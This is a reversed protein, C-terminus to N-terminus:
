LGTSSSAAAAGLRCLPGTTRPSSRSPPRSSSSQHCNSVPASSHIPDGDISELGRDTTLGFRVQLRRQRWHQPDRKDVVVPVPAAAHVYRRGMGGAGDSDQAGSSKACANPMSPEMAGGQQKNLFPLSTAMDFHARSQRDVAAFALDWICASSVAGRRRQSKKLSLLASVPAGKARDLDEIWRLHSVRERGCGM